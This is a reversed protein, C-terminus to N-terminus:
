PSTEELWGEDLAINDDFLVREREVKTVPLGADALSALLSDFAAGMAADDSPGFRQTLFREQVGDPSVKYASRSLHASQSAALRGLAELDRTAVRVHHELYVPASAAFPGQSWPAEVKLRCRRAGCTSLAEFALAEAHQRAEVVSTGGHLTLMIQRPAVGRVLEICLVKVGRRVAWTRLEPEAGPPLALTLHTELYMAHLSTRFPNQGPGSGVAM